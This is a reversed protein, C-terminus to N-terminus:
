AENLCYNSIPLNSIKFTVNFSSMIQVNLLTPLNEGVDRYRVVEVVAKERQDKGIIPLKQLHFTALRMM